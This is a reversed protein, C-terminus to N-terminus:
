WSDSLSGTSAFMGLERVAAQRSYHRYQMVILCPALLYPIVHDPVPLALVQGAAQAHLLWCTCVKADFCMNLDTCM